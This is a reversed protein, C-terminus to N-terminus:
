GRTAGRFEPTTWVEALRVLTAAAAAMEQVSAWERVSHFEHGGTFLNPTPLGMASLQSGDTGGRISTRLPELGEARIALAAADTVQPFADVYTRMNPYQATIEVTARARPERAMVEDVTRRLVEGHAALLEDDFDRLITRVVAHSAGGQVEYVHIFGDRGSTREPTLDAPLAAVVEAALRAANVLKGTAFGPHVEHGEITVIGETASFTEDQLEGIESGDVTYACLAGFGEVDFSRVGTGIEEDPTFALRLTPRPLEPNALLHAVATLIAAVGAKDDAGLLTDGSSTVLDHGVHDRLEVIEDPDLVTGGRPLELRGGDYARHVIPEVGDGPADPSTDMHAILGIVPVPGDAPAITAPVTAYVFGHEDLRADDIGLALLDDVLVRGLDFQRASSPTASGDRDSQTGVRVYRDFRELLEPALSEALPSTFPAPAAAAM